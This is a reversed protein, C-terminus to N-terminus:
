VFTGPCPPPFLLWPMWIARFAGRLYFPNISDQVFANDLGSLQPYTVTAGPAEQTVLDIVAGESLGALSALMLALVCFLLVTRRFTSVIM